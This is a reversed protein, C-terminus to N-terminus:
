RKGSRLLFNKLFPPLIYHGKAKYGCARARTGCFFNDLAVLVMAICVLAVIWRRGLAFAVAGIAAVIAVLGYLMTEARYDM